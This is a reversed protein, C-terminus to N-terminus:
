LIKVSGFSVITISIWDTYRELIKRWEPKQKSRVENFGHKLRLEEVEQTTLGVAPSPM